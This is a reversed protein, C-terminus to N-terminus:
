AKVEGPDRAAPETQKLLVARDLGARTRHLFKLELTAPFPLKGDHRLDLIVNEQEVALTTTLTNAGYQSALSLLVGRKGQILADGFRLAVM